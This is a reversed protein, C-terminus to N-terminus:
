KKRGYGGEGFKRDLVHARAAEFLRMDGTARPDGTRRQYAELQARLRTKIALHAPSEALNTTQWPDTGSDYLEERPRREAFLATYRRVDPHGPHKTVLAREDDTARNTEYESDPRQQAPDPKMRPGDGYNVVYLYHEDRIARGALNVPPEEGHWELGTVTWSRAPAVGGSKGSQLIGLVSRGSMEPPVPLGAAELMTPALDAFNVFDDVTRGGPVRAPWRMALPVRVGWDYLSTKGRAVDTGNDATVILLTNELEGREGLVQLVRGLDRDARCIEYALNARQRRV